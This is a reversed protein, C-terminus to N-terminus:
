TWGGQLVLRARRMGVVITLHIETIDLNPPRKSRSFSIEPDGTQSYLLVRRFPHFASAKQRASAAGATDAPGSIIYTHEGHTRRVREYNHEEYNKQDGM